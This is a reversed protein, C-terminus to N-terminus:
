DLVPSQPCSSSRTKAETRGRGSRWGFPCRGGCACARDIEFSGHRLCSKERDTRLVVRSSELLFLPRPVLVAARVLATAANPAIMPPSAPPPVPAPMPAALPPRRHSPAFTWPRPAIEINSATQFQLLAEPKLVIQQGPRLVAEPHSTSRTILLAIYSQNEKDTARGQNQGCEFFLLHSHSM